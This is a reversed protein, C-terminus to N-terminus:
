FGSPRVAEHTAFHWSVEHLDTDFNGRVHTQIICNFRCMLTWSLIIKPSQTENNLCDIATRDNWEHKNFHWLNSSLLCSPLKKNDELKSAILSPNTDLYSKKM